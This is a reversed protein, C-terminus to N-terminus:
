TKNHIKKYYESKLESIKTFSYKVFQKKFFSDNVGNQLTM